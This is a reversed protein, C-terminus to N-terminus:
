TSFNWNRLSLSRIFYKALVCYGKYVFVFFIRNGHPEVINLILVPAFMNQFTDSALILKYFHMLLIVVQHKELRTCGWILLDDIVTIFHCDETFMCPHLLSANCFGSGSARGDLAQILIGQMNVSMM